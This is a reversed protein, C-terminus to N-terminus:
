GKRGFWGGSTDRERQEKDTQYRQDLTVRCGAFLWEGKVWCVLDRIKTRTAVPSIVVEISRSQALTCPAMPSFTAIKTCFM